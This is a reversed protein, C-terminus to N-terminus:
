FISAVIRSHWNGTSISRAKLTAAPMTWARDDMLVIRCLHNLRKSGSRERRESSLKYEPKQPVTLDCFQSPERRVSRRILM